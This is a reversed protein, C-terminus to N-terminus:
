IFLTKPIIMSVKFYIKKIILNGIKLDAGTTTTISTSIGFPVLLLFILCACSHPCEKVRLWELSHINEFHHWSFYGASQIYTM